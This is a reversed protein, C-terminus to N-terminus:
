HLGIMRLIDLGIVYFMLMGVMLLGIWMAINRAWAALPRGTATEIALFVLQGGDTIPIPLLNILFLNLGILAVLELFKGFGLQEVSGKLASFIGIPGQLSKNPDLGGDKTTQFFKPIFQLTKVIMTYAASNALSFAETWSELKYTTIAVNKLVMAVGLDRPQVTVSRSDGAGRIVEFAVAHEDIPVMGTIWDGKKLGASLKAWGDESLARPPLSGAIGDRTTFNIVAGDVSVIRKGGLEEALTPTGKAGFLQAIRWPKDPKLAAVSDDVSLPILLREGGSVVAMEVSALLSKSKAPSIQVIADGAKIGAAALPSPKGDILPLIPLYGSVAIVGAGLMTRGNLDRGSIPVDIESGARWVRVVMTRGANLAARTAAVFGISGVVPKGDIAITVDGPRLGNPDASNKFESVLAPFGMAMAKDFKEGAYLFNITRESSDNRVILTVNTGALPELLDRLESGNISAPVAQGNIAVIREGMRPVDNPLVDNFAATTLVETGGMPIIGLTLRGNQYDPAAAIGPGEAPLRLTQVIGQADRREITLVLPQTGSSVVNMYLNDFERIRDGNLTLIRDGQRLGLRVAPSPQVHGREDIVEAEVGGVIPEITPKGYWALCILILYSSILNFLVGGLLILAQWWPSKALYSRPDTKTKGAEDSPLDEQGLMKVYGGLPLLSLAYETEGIQKRIIVPGFGISFREVRVGAWKAFLFHGLEHIFIVFGFGGAALLCFWVTSLIEM